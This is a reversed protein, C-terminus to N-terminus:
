RAKKIIINRTANRRIKRIRTRKKIAMINKKVTIKKTM